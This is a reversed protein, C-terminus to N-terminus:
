IVPRRWSVRLYFAPVFEHQKLYPFGLECPVLGQLCSFVFRQAQPHRDPYVCDTHWFVAYVGFLCLRRAFHM